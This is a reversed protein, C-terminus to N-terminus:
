QRNRRKNSNSSSLIAVIAIGVLAALGLAVGKGEEKFLQWGLIGVTVSAAIITLPDSQRQFGISLIRADYEVTMGALDQVIQELEEQLLTEELYIRVRGKEGEKYLYLYEPLTGIDSGVYEEILM